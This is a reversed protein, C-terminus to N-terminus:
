GFLEDISDVTAARRVWTELLSVDDCGSIRARVEEPVAIGRAELVLLVAKGAEEVKGEEKGEVVYKRAFDSKYEYTGVVMLEEMYRKAAGSLATLVFDAYLRSREDDIVAFGGWLANLIKEGNDGNAHAFASLVALEPARAAAAPDHIRPIQEPGISMPRLVWGPHGMDIPEGCRTAVRGDPCLVLLWAPCRKRARLTSLYVPWSWRKGADFRRQIEVVVALVARGGEALTVVADARYEAPSTDVYDGSDVCIEAYDPVPMGLGEGLLDVALEPRNRFLEILVEHEKSPMGAM